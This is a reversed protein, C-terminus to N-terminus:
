QKIGNWFIEFVENIIKEDVNLMKSNYIRYVQNVTGLMVITVAEYSIARIISSSVARKYLDRLHYYKELNSKVVDPNIYPSAAYQDMFKAELMNNIHYDVMNRWKLHYEDEISIGDYMGKLIANNFDTKVYTYVENIIDEKNKFYRYITGAAIGSDKAIMSVPTGHFGNETILKLTSQLILTKKDM